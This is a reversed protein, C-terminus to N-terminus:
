MLGNWLSWWIWLVIEYSDDENVWKMPILMNVCVKWLSLKWKGWGMECLDEKLLNCWVMEYTDDYECFWKLPVM